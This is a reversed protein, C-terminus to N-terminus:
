NLNKKTVRYFPLVVLIFRPAFICARELAGPQDSEPNGNGDVL